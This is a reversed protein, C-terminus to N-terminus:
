LPIILSPTHQCATTAWMCTCSSKVNPRDRSRARMRAASLTPCLWCCCCLDCSASTKAKVNAATPQVKPSQMGAGLAADASYQQAAAHAADAQLNCVAAQLQRTGQALGGALCCAHQCCADGRCHAGCLLLHPPTTLSCCLCHCHGAVGEVAVVRGAITLSECEGAAHLAQQMPQLRGAWRGCVGYRASDTVKRGSQKTTNHNDITRYIQQQEWM